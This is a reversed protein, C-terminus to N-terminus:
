AEMVEALATNGSRKLGAIVRARDGASKNQSLKHTGRVADVTVEFAIIARLMARQRAEDLKDRTWPNEPIIRPEHLAALRDVQDILGAEDVSRAHGEIEVATYNWTPVEPAPNAYWNPTIYGDAGAISLLLRAGDLHPTARNARSVHFRLQREGVAVIPAHVMMPGAPTVAFIHAFGIAVAWDLMAADDGPRFAPNPHM